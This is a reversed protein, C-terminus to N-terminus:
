KRYYHKISDAIPGIFNFAIHFKPLPDNKSLEKGSYFDIPIFLIRRRLEEVYVEGRDGKENIWAVQGNYEKPRGNEDSVLYSRIIRKRGQINEAELALERFARICSDIHGLHFLSIGNIYKVLPTAYIEGTDLLENTLSWVYKWDNESFPVTRREGVLIAKGTMSIWWTRLLLSLCKGDGKINQRNLELYSAAKKFNEIQYDKFEDNTLYRDIMQIARLYYGAKSGQEILAEFADDALKKDAILHAAELRRELFKNHQEPDYAEGDVSFLAHLLDARVENEDKINLINAKLLKISLWSMVDIPHYDEPYLAISKVLNVKAQSFIKLIDAIPLNRDLYQQTKTALLAGLEVLIVHRLRINRPELLELAQNLIIEAKQLLEQPNEIHLSRRAHWVVCERILTAEQLLLRSNVIGIKNRLEELIQAVKMAHPAFYDWNHGNPGLSRIMDVAFQVDASDSSETDSIELLLDKAFSIEANADGFRYQVIIEAELPHRPGVSIQGLIDEDWRFIDQELYDAIQEMWETKLARLLLEFPVRLGFRGPVMILGILKKILNVDEGDVQKVIGTFSNSEPRFGANYLAFGLTTMPLPPHKDAMQIILEEAQLVEANLNQRLQNRTPPLLRYLAVFFTADQKTRQLVRDLKIDPDIKELFRSLKEKEKDDIYNPAEVVFDKRDKTIKENLKYYSGLMLVKRGRALLYRLTQYYQDIEEMGDWIICIAKAGNDEAWKSFEDLDTALPRTSKREIFLVPINSLKRRVEYALRGLAITKGTGSQGHLIIPKDIKDVNDLAHKVKNWLMLEFDRQFAFGRVYGEWVPVDSSSHLFALFDAYRSERTEVPYQFIKEEIILASKSVQNWLDIPITIIKDLLKITHEGYDDPKENLNISGQESAALLFSALSEQHITVKGADILAKFDDDTLDADQVSFFHVQGANLSDIVPILEEFSLWDNRISYGEVLLIGLPTIIEWLRGLISASDLKRKRWEQKTVPPQNENDGGISGYLFTGHLRTRSRIDPPNYKKNYIPSVTRWETRFTRYWLTDIASTYVGNWPFKVVTKLWEPSSLRDCRGNIWALASDKNEHINTKFLADYGESANVNQSGYKQLVDKLLPDYGTELSLYKQGLFLFVLGDRIQEILDKSAM